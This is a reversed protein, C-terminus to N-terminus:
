STVNTSVLRLYLTNMKPNMGVAVPIFVKSGDTVVLYSTAFDLVDVGIEYRDFQASDIEIQERDGTDAYGTYDNFSNEPMRVNDNTMINRNGARTKLEIELEEDGSGEGAIDSKDNIGKALEARVAEASYTWNNDVEVMRNEEAYELKLDCYMRAYNINQLIHDTECIIGIRLKHVSNDNNAREECFQLTFEGNNENFPYATPPNESSGSVWDLVDNNRQLYKGNSNNDLNDLDQIVVMMKTYNLPTTPNMQSPEEHTLIYPKLTIKINNVGVMTRVGQPITFYTSVSKPQLVTAGSNISFCLGFPITKSVSFTHDTNNATVEVARCFPYDPQDSTIEWDEAFSMDVDDTNLPFVYRDKGSFARTVNPSPFTNGVTFSPKISNESFSFIENSSQNNTTFKIRSPPQMISHTNDTGATKIDSIGISFIPNYGSFRSGTEYTAANYNDWIPLCYLQAGDAVDNKWRLLVAVDVNYEQVKGWPYCLTEIVEAFTQPTIRGAQNDYFYAPSVIGETWHQTSSGDSIIDGNFDQYNPKNTIINLFECGTWIFIARLLGGITSQEMFYDYCNGGEGSPVPSPMPFYELAAVTSIIPLEVEYPTSDWDQSFTQPQIFGQWYIEWNNNMFRFVQVRCDNIASPLLGGKVFVTDRETANRCVLRLTGTSGLLVEDQSDDGRGKWEVPFECGLLTVISGDYNPQAIRVEWDNGDVDRFPVIYRVRYDQPIYYFM